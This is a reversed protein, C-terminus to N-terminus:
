RLKKTLIKEIAKIREDTLKRITIMDPTDEMGVLISRRHMYWALRQELTSNGNPPCTTLPDM